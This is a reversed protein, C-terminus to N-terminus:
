IKANEDGVTSAPSHAGRASQFTAFILHRTFPLFRIGHRHGLCRIHFRWADKIRAGAMCQTAAEHLARAFKDALLHQVNRPLSSDRMQSVNEPMAVFYELKQSESGATEFMTFHPEPDDM